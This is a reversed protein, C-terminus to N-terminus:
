IFGNTPKNNQNGFIKDTNESDDYTFIILGLDNSYEGSIDIIAVRNDNTMVFLRNDDIKDIKVIDCKDTFIKMNEIDKDLEMKYLVNHKALYTINNIMFLNSTTITYDDSIM